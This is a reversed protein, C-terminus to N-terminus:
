FDNLDTMKFATGLFRKNRNQALISSPYSVLASKVSIMVGMVADSLPSLNCM